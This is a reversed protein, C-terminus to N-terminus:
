PPPLEPSEPEKPPPPAEIASYASLRLWPTVTVTRELKGKTDRETGMSGFLLPGGAPSRHSHWALAPWGDPGPEVTFVYNTAYPGSLMHTLDLIKIHGLPKM